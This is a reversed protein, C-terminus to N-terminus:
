LSCYILIVNYLLGKVIRFVYDLTIKINTKYSTKIFSLVYKTAYILIFVNNNTRYLTTVIMVTDKIQYQYM